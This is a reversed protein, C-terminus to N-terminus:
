DGHYFEEEIWAAVLMSLLCTPIALIGAIVWMINRGTDGM